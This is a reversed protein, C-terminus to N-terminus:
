RAVKIEASFALHPDQRENLTRSLTAITRLCKADFVTKGNWDVKIREDCNVMRDDVLVILASVDDSIVRISQGNREARVIIREKIQDTPLALWYFSPHTVDDQQWVIKTPVPDRTFKAMWPIAVADENEMWHGKGEHITVVHQYGEPDDNRLKALKVKWEAAVENRKYAADEGGMHLAFGLNRLGLPQTENPHGAMMAAAAWRDAMRPALQYVGDGGASYGLLYVRNPNVNEYVVLSSILREFLPDIHSQHWLNWTNTPARPRM